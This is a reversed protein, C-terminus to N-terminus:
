EGLQKDGVGDQVVDACYPICRQEQKTKAFPMLYKDVSEPTTYKGVYPAIHDCSKSRMFRKQHGLYKGYLEEMTENIEFGQSVFRKNIDEKIEKFEDYEMVYQLHSANSAFKGIRDCASQYDIDVLTGDEKRQSIKFDSNNCMEDMYQRVGDADIYMECDYYPRPTDKCNGNSIMDIVAFGHVTKGDCVYPTKSTVELYSEGTQVYNHTRMHEVEFGEKQDARYTDAHSIPKSDFYSMDLWAGKM